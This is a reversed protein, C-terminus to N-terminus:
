KYYEYEVPTSILEKFEENEKKKLYKFHKIIGNEMKYILKVSRYANIYVIVLEGNENMTYTTNSSEGHNITLPLKWQNNSYCNESTENGDTRTMYECNAGNETKINWKVPCELNIKEYNSKDLFYQLTCLFVKGELQYVKFM